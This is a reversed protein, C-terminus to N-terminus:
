ENEERYPEPLPMWALVRFEQGEDWDIFTNWADCIYGREYPNFIAVDVCREWEEEHKYKMEFTILYSDIIEPMRESCPIWRMKGEDYLRSARLLFVSKEDSCTFELHTM